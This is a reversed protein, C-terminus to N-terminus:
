PELTILYLVNDQNVFAIKKGDPSIAFEDVRGSETKAEALLRVSKTETDVAWFSTGGEFPNYRTFVIDSSGPMAVIPAQVNELLMVPEWNNEAKAFNLVKDASFFVIATDPHQVWSPSNTDEFVALLNGSEIEWVAIGKSSEVAILQGTFDLLLQEGYSAWQSSELSLFKPSGGVKLNWILEDVNEITAYSLAWVTIGDPAISISEAQQLDSTRGTQLDMVHLRSQSFPGAVALAFVHSGDPMYTLYYTGEVTNMISFSGNDVWKYIKGESGNLYYLIGQNDWGPTTAHHSIEQITVIPMLQINLQNEVNAHVQFIEEVPYFGDKEVRVIYEGPIPADNRSYVKGDLMIIANSPQVDIKLKTPVSSSKSQLLIVPFQLSGSLWALSIFIISIILSLILLLIVASKLSACLEFSKKLRM